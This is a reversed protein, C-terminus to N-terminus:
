LNVIQTTTTSLSRSRAHEARDTTLDKFPSEALEGTLKLCAHVVVVILNNLSKAEVIFIIVDEEELTGDTTRAASTFKTLSLKVKGNEDLSPLKPFFIYYNFVTYQLLRFFGNDLFIRIISWCPTM